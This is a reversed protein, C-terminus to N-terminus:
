TRCANEIFTRLADRGAPAALHDVLYGAADPLSIGLSGFRAMGEDHSFKLCRARQEDPEILFVVDYTLALEKARRARNKTRAADRKRTVDIMVLQYVEGEQATRDPVLSLWCAIEVPTGDARRIRADFEAPPQGVDGADLLAHFTSQDALPVLRDVSQIVSSRLYADAAGIGVIRWAQENCSVIGLGDRRFRVVGVPSADCGELLPTSPNGTQKSSHQPCM